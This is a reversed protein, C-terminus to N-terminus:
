TPSASAAPAARGQQGGHAVLPVLKNTLFVHELTRATKDNSGGPASNAIIEVNKQPSWGQAHGLGCCLLVAFLVFMKKM